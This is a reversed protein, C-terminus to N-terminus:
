HPHSHPPRVIKDGLLFKDTDSSGQILLSSIFIHSYLSNKWSIHFHFSLSPSITAMPFSLSFNQERLNHFSTHGHSRSLLVSISQPRVCSFFYNLPAPNQLCSTVLDEGSVSLLFYPHAFIKQFFQPYLLQSIAFYSM